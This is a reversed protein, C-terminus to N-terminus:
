IVLFWLKSPSGARRQTMSTSHIVEPRKLGFAMPRAGGCSFLGVKSKHMMQPERLLTAPQASLCYPTKM